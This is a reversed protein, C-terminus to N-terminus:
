REGDVFIIRAGNDYVVTGNELVYQMTKVGGCEFTDWSVSERCGYGSGFALTQHDVNWKRLFVYGKPKRCISQGEGSYIYFNQIVLKESHGDAYIPYEISVKDKVWKMAALDEPAFRSTMDLRYSSWAVSFPIDVHGIEDSKIAEFVIGNNFLFYPLLLCGFAVTVYYQRWQVKFNMLKILRVIGRAVVGIGYVFIPAVFMMVIGFIRTAGAGYSITPLVYMGGFIAISAVVFAFYSVTIKGFSLPCMVMRFFGIIFCAEVTYQLIRWVKGLISAGMFDFGITTQLLIERQDSTYNAGAILAKVINVPVGIVSAINVGTATKSFYALMFGISVVCLVSLPIWTRHRWSLFDTPLKEKQMTMWQWAVQIWKAKLLAVLVTVLFIYGVFGMGLGYHSVIVGVGFVVALASKVWINIRRDVLLLAVLAFFLMAYQQRVLQVVDMTFSPLTIFFVVALTAVVHGFQMRYIRYLVLPLLAFLLPQVAKFIWMADVKTLISFVPLLIVIPLCTNVPVPSSVNWYGNMITQNAYYYELHVDSGMLNATPLTMQYIFFVSVAYILLPSLNWWSMRFYYPQTIRNGYRYILGVFVLTAVVWALTVPLASIPKAIGFLPLGFNLVLGVIIDFVLSLGVAYLLGDLWHIDKLKLLGLIVFGPLFILIPFWLLSLLIM